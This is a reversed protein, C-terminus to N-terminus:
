KPSLKLLRGEANVLLIGGDDGVPIVTMLGLTPVENNITGDDLDISILQNKTFLLMDQQRTLVPSATIETRWIEEGNIADIAVIGPNPVLPQIILRGLAIPSASLEQEAELYKWTDRGTTRNLAYLKGDQSAVIVESGQIAPTTNVPGLTRNRWLPNGSSAELMAYTGGSDVIFVDQGALVSSSTIRNALRYRWRTFNSDVSHAFVLGNTGSMIALRQEPAYIAKASVAVELPAVSIVDGTRANLTAFRSASHIFVQQGDRSPPFLSEIDSGINIKWLLRGDDASLATVINKPDEIVFVMDGLATVSTIEQGELLKIPSAWGLRYGIKAAPEPEILMGIPDSPAQFFSNNTQEPEPKDTQQGSSCGLSFGLLSVMVLWQVTKLRM